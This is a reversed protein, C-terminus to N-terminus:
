CAQNPFLHRRSVSARQGIVRRHAGSAAIEAFSLATCKKKKTHTHVKKKQYRSPFTAAELWGLHLFCLELGLKISRASCGFDCHFCLLHSIGVFFQKSSLTAKELKPNLPHQKQSHRYIVGASVPLTRTVPSM